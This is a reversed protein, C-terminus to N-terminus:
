GTRERTDLPYCLDVNEATLLQHKVFVASPLSKHQLIGLALPIVEDGYREPFYAVSGVLRSGRHRLESRAEITGNQGMAACLQAAGAEEFARVAALAAMDNIAGVLTRGRAGRRLHKRVQELNREFGGKGDLHTIRARDAERLEQRLGALFGSIRLQPLSGAIPLELLLIEEAQGDWHRKAWRGLARGGLLGAQYNNAGFYTAGPHPIELAIVPIRAELFKAAVIPAVREYTQFEVVLNVGQGILLDANLVAQAASYRNNVTILHVGERAAAREMGQTVERSFESDTQAAFGIRVLSPALPRVCLRYANKGARALLGGAVLTRLLRFTTTKSLGTREGIESLTLEEGEGHFAGLIRCAREVAQVNESRGAM